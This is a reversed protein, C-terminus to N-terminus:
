EIPSGGTETTYWTITGGTATATLTQTTTGDSCVTQDGGSEPAVPAANITLTVATRSSSTCETADNVSEAYYTIAGVTNLNPSPVVDGGTEADYWVVSFGDPVTATATLTQIPNTECVTQDQASPAAPLANITVSFSNEDTCNANNASAAYVYITQSSTIVDNAFLATGTGGTGTFYNGSNLAPLTYSECETVDAPDDVTVVDAEVTITQTVEIFNECDDAIKYTRTVIYADGSCGSKGNNEDKVFTVTATSCNDAEDTILSVDPVPVDSIKKLGTINAPATGTPKTTDNIKITHIIDVSINSCEDTVKYTRTIVIPCTGNVADSSSVSLNADASCNDSISLNGILAELAAVTTVAAPAVSISCGELETDTISGTVLPATTDSIVIVQNKTAGNGCADTVTWERIIVDNNACSASLAPTLCSSIFRVNGNVNEQKKSYVFWQGDLSAMGATLAEFTSVLGNTLGTISGSNPSTGGNPEFNGLGEAILDSNVWAPYVSTSPYFTPSYVEVGGDLDDCNGGACYPGVLVIGKGNPAVLIFEARGKGQNTEFTLNFSKISNVNLGAMGSINFYQYIGGGANVEKENELGFCDGDTFSPTLTGDCNDTATAMGLSSPTIDATCEIGANAPISLTPATTDIISIEQTDTGINGCNDTVTFTRTVVIPCTGSKSDKYTVSAIGTGTEVITLGTYPSAVTVDAESYTRGLIANTDCGELTYDAPATVVPDIGDGDIITASATTTCGNADTVIVNYTGASLGSPNQDTSVVTVNDGTKKWSYTYSATGGQVTLTIDGDSDGECYLSEGTANASLAATPQTITVAQTKTCGNFDKVTITYSGAILSSFTGSSGFTIGDIAYTYPSTGNAGAVTVSGNNNGFCDVNTQSSISSTLAASPQTIEVESSTENCGNGETVVVKYFGVGLGTYSGDLDGDTASANTFVGGSTASYLLNYTILGVGGTHTATVTGDSNGYCLVNTRNISSITVTCCAVVTVDTRTKTDTNTPNDLDTVTLTVTKDGGSSYTVTHPGFTNATAPSAGAGFSWSYSNNLSGGTGTSNYVVQQYAGTTCDPTASFDAIIPTIVVIGSQYNKSCKSTSACSPIGDAQGSTDWSLYINKLELSQGCVYNTIEAMRYNAVQIAGPIAITLLKTDDILDNGDINKKVGNILLDFQFYLDWKSSAKTIQVWIYLPPLTQGAVCDVIPTGSADGLYVKGFEVDNAVCAAPNCGVEETPSTTILVQQSYGVVTSFLLVLFTALNILTIKKM